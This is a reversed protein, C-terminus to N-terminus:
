KPFGLYIAFLVLIIGLSILVINLRHKKRNHIGLVICFIGLLMSGVMAFFGM